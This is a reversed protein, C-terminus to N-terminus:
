VPRRRHWGLDLGVEDVGHEGVPGAVVDVVGMGLARGGLAGVGELDDDAVPGGLSIRRRDISAARRATARPRLLDDDVLVVGVALAVAVAAVLVVQQVALHGEAADHALDGRVEDGALQEAARALDAALAPSPASSTGYWSDALPGVEELLLDAELGRQLPRDDVGAVLGVGVGLLVPPQVDDDAVGVHRSTAVKRLTPVVAITSAM